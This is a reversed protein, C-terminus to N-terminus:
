PGYLHQFLMVLKMGSVQCQLMALFLYIESKKQGSSDHLTAVKLATEGPTTLKSCIEKQCTGKEAERALRSKVHGFLCHFNSLQAM